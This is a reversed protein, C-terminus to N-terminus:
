SRHPPCHQSRLRVARRIFGRLSGGLSSNIQLWRLSVPEPTTLKTKVTHRFGDQNNVVIGIHPCQQALKEAQVSVVHM